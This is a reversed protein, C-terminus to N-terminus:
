RGLTDGAAKRLRKGASMLWGGTLMYRAISDQPYMSRMEEGHDRDLEPAMSGEASKRFVITTGRTSIRPDPELGCIQGALTLTAPTFGHVHAFHFRRFTQRHDPLMNPVSVHLVGDDALLSALWRLATVPRRLHELVHSTTILDFRGIESGIREWPEAIVEVGFTQRAYAAFARGPEVGIVRHGAAAAAGLFAGAGSGFDLIRMGPSLAPALLSLRLAAERRSRAMHRKSPRDGAQGYDWRYSEAYYRALEDETPMPHTRLLGCRRCAVTTLRKFRRDFESILVTESSGCLDCDVPEGTVPYSTFPLANAIARAFSSPAM